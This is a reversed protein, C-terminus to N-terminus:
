KKAEVVGRDQRESRETCALAESRAQKDSREGAQRDELVCAVFATLSTSSALGGATAILAGHSPPVTTGAVAVCEVFLTILGIVLLFVAIIIFFLLGIDVNM